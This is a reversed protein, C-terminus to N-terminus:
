TVGLTIGFTVAQLMEVMSLEINKTTLCFINARCKTGYCWLRVPSHAQYIDKRMPKKLLAIYFEAHDAHHAREEPFQLTSGIKHYFSRIKDSKQVINPDVIFTPPAGVEKVSIQQVQPIDSGSKM